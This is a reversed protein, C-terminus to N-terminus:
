DSKRAAKGDLLDESLLRKLLLFLNIEKYLFESAPSCGPTEGNYELMRSFRKKARQQIYPLALRWM